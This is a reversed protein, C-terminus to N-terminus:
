KCSFNPRNSENPTMELDFGDRKILNQQIFMNLQMQKKAEYVLGTDTDMKVYTEISSETETNPNNM